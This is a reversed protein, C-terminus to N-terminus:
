NFRPISSGLDPYESRTPALPHAAIGSMLRHHEAAQERGVGGVELLQAIRDGLQAEAVGREAELHLGARREAEAEAAAEEVQEIERNRGIGRGTRVIFRGDLKVAAGVV